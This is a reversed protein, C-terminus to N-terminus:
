RGPIGPVIGGAISPKGKGLRLRSTPPIGALVTQWYALHGAADEGRLWDRQWRAFDVYQVSPERLPSPGGQMYAQYLAAMERAFIQMSRADFVIHHVNLLLVSEGGTRILSYRILPGSELRFPRLAELAILGDVTRDRDGASLRCLDVVPMLPGAERQLRQVPRSNELAFVSHLIAHRRVVERLGQELAAIAGVAKLRFATPLNYARDQAPMQNALWLAEQERSLPYGGEPVSPERCLSGATNKQKINRLSCVLEAKHATLKRRLEPTLAGAPAKFRLTNGDARLEIGARDLESLLEVLM